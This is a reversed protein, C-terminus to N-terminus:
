YHPLPVCKSIFSIVKTFISKRKSSTKSLGSRKSDRSMKSGKSGKSASSKTSKAGINEAKTKISRFSNQMVVEEDKPHIKLIELLSDRTLRMCVAGHQSALATTFHRLGFFFALAGFSSNKTAISTVQEEDADLEEVAGSLVFFMEKAVEGAAFVQEEPVFSIELLIM